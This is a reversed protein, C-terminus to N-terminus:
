YPHPDSREHADKLAALAIIHPDTAGAKLQRRISVDIRLSIDSRERRQFAPIQEWALKYAAGYLDVKRAVKGNRKRRWKGDVEQATTKIRPSPKHPTRKSM